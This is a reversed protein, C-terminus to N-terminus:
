ALEVCRMSLNQYEFGTHPYRVKPKGGEGGAAAAAVLLPTYHDDTPVALSSGPAKKAYDALADLDFAELARACWADFETAWSDVPAHKGNLNARRLNHTINGSGVIWVGQTRLPALARGLALHASMPLGTGLSIELVPVDAKPFLHLLPVWAGHDLGRRPDSGPKLGATKLLDVVSRALEPAGPAPYTLRYLPEPFGYFDFVLPVTKTAGVHAPWELWHASVVLIATPRPVSAGWTRLSAAPGETELALLPAGHAVFGVPM